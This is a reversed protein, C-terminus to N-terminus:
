RGARTVEALRYHTQYYYTERDDQSELLARFKLEALADGPRQAALQRAGELAPDSLLIQQLSRKDRRNMDALAAATLQPEMAVIFADVGGNEAFLQHWCNETIRKIETGWRLSVGQLQGDFDPEFGRMAEPVKVGAVVPLWRSLNVFEQHARQSSLFKLFDLAVEPHASGRYVGFPGTLPRGGTEAPPGWTFAGFRPHEPGPRPLQFVGMPFGAQARLGTTEWSGAALMLAKGQTFAFMADERRLQLFGPQMHRGVERMLELGARIAPDRLSWQGALLAQFFSDPSAHLTRAVTFQHSLKQSVAEFLQDLLYPANDRSGAIPVLQRGTRAAFVQTRECLALLGDLTAPPTTSGTIERLLTENCFVRVTAYFCPIGYYDALKENYGSALGDIFTNRWPVGELATGRNYPNPADIFRTIPEFHRGLILTEANAVLEILDPATDGILQTTLWQPYVRQPIRMQIVRVEPHLREYDRALRDFAEQVGAELQWHALRLTIRAPDSAATERRAVQVLAFGFCAAVLLGAALYSPRPLNM